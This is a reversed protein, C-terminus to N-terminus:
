SWAVLIARLVLIDIHGFQNLVADRLGVLSVRDSVDCTRCLTKRELALISRCTVSVEQFSRSSPIVNAGAKALGITIAQGIGSAGGIVVACKGNLHV